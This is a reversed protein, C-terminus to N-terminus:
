IFLEPYDIVYKHYLDSVACNVKEEWANSNIISINDSDSHWDYVHEIVKLLGKVACLETAFVHHEYVKYIITNSLSHAYVGIPTVEIDAEFPLIFELWKGNHTNNAIFLWQRNKNNM